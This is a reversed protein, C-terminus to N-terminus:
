QTFKLERITKMMLDAEPQKFDTLTWKLRLIYSGPETKKSARTISYNKFKAQDGVNGTKLVTLAKEFYKLQSLDPFSLTDLVPSTLVQMDRFQLSYSTDTRDISRELIIPWDGARIEVAKTNTTSLNFGNGGAFPIALLCFILKKM